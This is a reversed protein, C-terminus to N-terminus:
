GRRRRTLGLGALASGMLWAAGPLPVAAVDGDRVAWVHMDSYTKDFVRQNGEYFNFAWALNSNTTDAQNYWYNFDINTFSGTNILCDTCVYNGSTDSGSVNGLNTHYLYALEGTTPDVNFGCDPGNYSFICGDNNIDTVNPLRWNNYGKYNATNMAAIWDQAAFWSMLGDPGAVSFTETAGLNADQLWTINQDSDYIMGGGRNFLAAEAGPAIFLMATALPAV